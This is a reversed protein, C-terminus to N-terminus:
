QKCSGPFDELRARKLSPGVSMTSVIVIVIITVPPIINPPPYQKQLGGVGTKHLFVKCCNAFVLPFMESVSLNEKWPFIVVVQPM